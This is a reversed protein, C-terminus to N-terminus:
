SEQLITEINDLLRATEIELEKSEQLITEIDDLLRAIEIPTYRQRILPVLQRDDLDDVRLGEYLPNEYNRTYRQRILPVVQKEKLQFTAHTIRTGKIEALLVRRITTGLINAQGEKLSSLMFRGRLGPVFSFMETKIVHNFQIVRM